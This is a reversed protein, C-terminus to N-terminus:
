SVKKLALYSRDRKLQECRRNRMRSPMGGFDFVKCIFKGQTPSPGTDGSMFYPNNRINANSFYVWVLGPSIESAM